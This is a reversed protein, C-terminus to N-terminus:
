MGTGREQYAWLLGGRSTPFPLLTRASPLEVDRATWLRLSEDMLAAHRNVRRVQPTQTNTTAMSIYGATAPFCRCWSRMELDTADEPVSQRAHCVGPRPCFMLWM